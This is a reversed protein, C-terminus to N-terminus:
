YNHWTLYRACSSQFSSFLVNSLDSICRLRRTTATKKGLINSAGYEITSVWNLNMDVRVGSGFRASFSYRARRERILGGYKENLDLVQFVRISPSTRSAPAFYCNLQDNPYHVTVLKRDEEIVWGFSDGASIDCQAHGNVVMPRDKMIEGDPSVANEMSITENLLLDSPIAGILNAHSLNAMSIMVDVLTAYALNSFTMISQNLISDTLDVGTMNCRDLSARLFSTNRLSAHSLHCSGLEAHIFNSHDGILYSCNTYVMNTFSLNGYTVNTGHLTAQGLDSHILNVHTMKAHSFDARELKAYSFDAAHLVAGTFLAGTLHAHRFNAYSMDQRAFSANVLYAGTLCLKHMKSQQTGTSLDISNLEANSLDLPAAGDTLQGVEFLFRILHSNRMPDLQRALTLTKARVLAATVPNSTVTGNNKDLLLALENMYAVFLSDRHRQLEMDLEHSRQKESMMRTVNALEYDQQRKEDALQRDLDRQQRSTNMDQERQLVWNRLDQERQEQASHRDEQRQITSLNLDQERQQEALRRDEVRQETAVRQQQFTIVVTFIGLMLPLLLSSALNLIQKMNLGGTERRPTNETMTAQDRPKLM